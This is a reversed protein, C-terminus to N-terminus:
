TFVSIVHASQPAIHSSWAISVHLTHSELLRLMSTKMVLEIPKV